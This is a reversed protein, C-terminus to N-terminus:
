ENLNRDDPKGDNDFHGIHLYERVLNWGTPSPPLEGALNGSSNRTLHNANKVYVNSLYLSQAENFIKFIYEKPTQTDVEISGDVMSLGGNWSLFSNLSEATKMRIKFGALHVSHFPNHTSQEVHLVQKEQDLFQCGVILPYNSFYNKFITGYQGGIIEVNFMGGAAGGGHGRVGAYADTATITVDEVSSGQDGGHHIGIAMPKKNLDIDIGRIVQNFNVGSEFEEPNSSGPVCGNQQCNNAPSAWFWFVPKPNGSDFNSDIVRILPRQVSNNGSTEGVIVVPENRDRYHKGNIVYTDMMCNLTNSVLYTGHPFYCVMKNDRAANIAEQIEDTDDFQDNPIAGFEIVSLYGNKFLDSNQNIYSPIAVRDPDEYNIQATISYSISLLICTIITAINIVTKMIGQNLYIITLHKLM